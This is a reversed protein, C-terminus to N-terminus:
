KHTKALRHLLPIAGPIPQMLGAFQMEDQIAWKRQICQELDPRDGFLDPAIHRDWRGAVKRIDVHFDALQMEAGLRRWADAQMTESDVLVGDFDFIGAKFRSLDIM